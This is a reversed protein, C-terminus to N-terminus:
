LKARGVRTTRGEVFWMNGDPGAVIGDPGAASEIGRAYEKVHGDTTIREADGCTVSNQIKSTAVSSRCQRAVSPASTKPTSMATLRPRCRELLPKEAKQATASM